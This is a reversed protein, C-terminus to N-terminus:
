IDYKEMKYRLIKRTIHLLEAAKIQVGGAQILAKKLYGKEIEEVVKMLSLGEEPIVVDDLSIAAKRPRDPFSFSKPTLTESRNLVVAREIMNQLERVNGPWDYRVLMEMAKPSIIKKSQHTEDTYKDMFSLTLVPIDDRRERLPPIDVPVVNIRYYLDERFKGERILQELDSNTAAIVRVDVQITKTGGLHEVEGSQLVRLLKVQLSTDMDGIEDLFLTGGDALEFRGPKQRDAGTFAGKEYGFLESELLTGPIAGCNLRIFPFTSRNSHCHIAGAILEKGTGSEGRILVTSKTPAIKTILNFIHQMENSTGIINDFRYKSHLETRLLENDRYLRRYRLARQVIVEMEAIDFPKLIYDFAGTKMAEVASQVTGYATMIIIPVEEDMKKIEQLVEMGSMGPMKMDTIVLSPMRAKALEVGELGSSASIVSYGLGELSIQLIRHMRKEDDIVLITEM